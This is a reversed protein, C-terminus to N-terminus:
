EGIPPAHLRTPSGLGGDYTSPHEGPGLHRTQGFRSIVSCTAGLCEELQRITAPERRLPRGEDAPPTLVTQVFRPRM